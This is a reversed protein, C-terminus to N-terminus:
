INRGVKVQLLDIASSAVSDQVNEPYIKVKETIRIVVSEIKKTLECLVELKELFEKSDKTFERLQM